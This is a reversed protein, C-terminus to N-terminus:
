GGTDEGATEPASFPTEAAELFDTCTLDPIRESPQDVEIVVAAAVRAARLVVEGQSLAGWSKRLRNIAKGLEEADALPLALFIDRVGRSEFRQSDEGGHRDVRARLEEDTDNFEAIPTAYTTEEVETDLSALLDEVDSDAYGTGEIDGGLGLLLDLLMQDDRTSYEPIRNDAVNIKTATHDDCTLVECRIAGSWGAHCVGCPSEASDSACKGTGHSRFAAMTHNGALVIKQKGVQRVILSRYQGNSRLSDLIKPVDGVNANGPFPELEDLPIAKTAVYKIM